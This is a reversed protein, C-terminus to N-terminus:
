SGCINRFHLSTAESEYMNNPLFIWATVPEYFSQLRRWHSEVHSMDNALWLFQAM